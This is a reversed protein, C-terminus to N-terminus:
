KAFLQVAYRQANNDSYLVVGRLPTATNRSLRCLTHSQDFFQRFSVLDFWVCRENSDYRWRQHFKVITEQFSPCECRVVQSNFSSESAPQLRHIFPLLNYMTNFCIGPGDTTGLM